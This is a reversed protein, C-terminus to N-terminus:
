VVWCYIYLKKSMFLLKNMPAIMNKKETKTELSANVYHLFAVFFMSTGEEEERGHGEAREKGKRGEKRGMFLFGMKKWWRWLCADEGEEEKNKLM